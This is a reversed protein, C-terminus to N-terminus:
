WRGWSFAEGEAEEDRDDWGLPLETRECTVGCDRVIAEVEEGSLCDRRLLAAALRPVALHV